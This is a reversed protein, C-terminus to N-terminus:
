TFPRCGPYDWPNPGDFYIPNDVYYGNEHLVYMCDYLRKLRKECWSLDKRVSKAM